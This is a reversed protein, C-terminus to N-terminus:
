SVKALPVNMAQQSWAALIANAIAPPVKLMGDPHAPVADGDVELNWDILVEASFRQFAEELQAPDNTDALKAYELYLGLPVDLRCKVEAGEMEGEFVLLATRVPIKFRGNRKTM